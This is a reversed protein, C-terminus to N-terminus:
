RREALLASGATLIADVVSTVLTEDPGEGMVRLLPETGSARVVLRGGGAALQREADRIASSMRPDSLLWEAEGERVSIERQVQPDLPLTAVLASLPGGSRVLLAILEIASILGDGTPAHEPFLLHGSKEGGFGPRGPTLVEAIHRDGVPTRQLTIGADRLQREVGSNTLITAVVRESGPLARRKRDLAILGIVVDGDILVGREDVVACRDADGDLAIGLDAGLEVVRRGLAAPSTAGVGDNILGEGMAMGDVTAGTASLAAEAFPTGAGNSGDLLVRIGAAALNPTAAAAVLALQAAYRAAYAAGRADDRADTASAADASAVDASAAALREDIMRELERELADPVKRGDRGIVKLGNYEAPNHSATVVVGCAVDADAAVVAALGPTPIVGLNIPTAGGSRIGAALAASLEPGSPRTDRGILINGAPYHAALAAGLAYAVESTLSVGAVGRIGDTGFRVAAM